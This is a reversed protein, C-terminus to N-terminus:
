TDNQRSGKLELEVCSASRGSSDIFPPFDFDKIANQGIEADLGL